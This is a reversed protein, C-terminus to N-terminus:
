RAGKGFLRVLLKVNYERNFRERVLVSGNQGLRHRLENNETLMVIADALREASDPEILVGTQSDIVVEPIGAVSTAVVPVGMAMAELIVTPIGDRNGNATIICPMVFIDANSLYQRILVEQTCPGELIVVESLHNSSILGELYRREAGDGVIRCIFNVSNNQLIKCAMILVAFGKKPVLRGVALIEFRGNQKNEGTTPYSFKSLDLGNFIMHIKEPAAALSCLYNKNYQCITVAFRASDIMSKIEPPTSKVWIDKAHATFSYDIGTLNSVLRAIKTNNAAFHAHIHDIKRKLVQRSIRGAMWFKKLASKKKKKKVKRFVKIWAIPRAMFVM